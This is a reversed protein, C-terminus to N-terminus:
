SEEGYSYEGLLNEFDSNDGRYVDMDVEGKVGAVDGWHSYQWFQWNMDQAPKSFRCIWLIYQTFNPRIYKEYGKVNTYLVLKQDQIKLYDIMDQLRKAVVPSATEPNGHDEIDIAIPLDFIKGQVSKILNMAQLTGSMDFRFFHYAGVPIGAKLALEYNKEFLSDQFSAGETAKIYVFSIDSKQVKEFDVIGNHASIDIGMVPYMKPDINIPPRLYLVYCIYGGVAIIAFLLLLVFTTLIRRGKKKM